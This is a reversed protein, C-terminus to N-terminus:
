GARPAGIVSVTGHQGPPSIHRNQQHWMQRYIDCRYLLEEHRGVDYVGGNEMVLIADAPVLMSLRHSVCIITRGTAIRMLNANIIAESEADLASTAEDLVLVPPDIILARAIALRQRQGGSLNTAAEDLLTDYGRPLREIFEEAGALQAARVVESFTANPRAIGINERITGRFLFNEQPVVGINSRLHHLEIERLDMGDVKIIGEYNPNLGQLLRTITTKGSGSRGMIGLITGARIDFSANDLALPAGQAYRFRVKQFSIQGRVPMRLGVGARDAESPINMVSAVEGVAGRVEQLEQMMRALQVLPQATRGALMSFGMIVGPAMLDPHALAVAAGVLISGSYILREFPLVYTQPHNALAGLKHRESVSAAVKRDWETRRRGELALSKITRMGQVTEYLHASKDIETAIVRSYQRSIPKLFAYIILFIVGACAFVMLALTWQLMLLVPVLVVLTVMDLATTLLQGTLFGRIQWLKSLKSMTEGSPTREFYEMPLRLLRDVIYLNLRGDIRTATTEMFMRRLFGLAADFLIILAMAGAVVYLTSTSQNVIVRDLVIMAIFPPAIAFLTGIFSAIGVDRLITRERLVQGALWGLGFPQSEDARGYRRKILILEGDWVLDLQAKDVLARTEAGTTPDRVVAARGVKPDDIVADLVLVSGDWLRLIAPLVKEFRPLDDWTARLSRARLGLEGALAVLAGTAVQSDEVSFRRRVADLSTDLGQQRAVYVLAELAGMGPVSGTM